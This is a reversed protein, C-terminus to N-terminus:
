ETKELLDEIHTLADVQENTAWNLSEDNLMALVAKLDAVPVTILRRAM